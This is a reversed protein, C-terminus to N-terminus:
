QKNCYRDFIRAKRLLKDANSFM